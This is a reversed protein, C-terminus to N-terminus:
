WAGVDLRGKLSRPWPLVFLVNEHLPREAPGGHAPGDMVVIGSESEIYVQPDKAGLTVAETICRQLLAHWAAIARPPPNVERPRRAAHAATKQAHKM